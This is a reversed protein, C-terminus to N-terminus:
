RTAEKRAKNAARTAASKETKMVSAEFSFIALLYSFLLFGWLALAVLTIAEISDATWVKDAEYENKALLQRDTLDPRVTRVAKTNEAYEWGAVTRHWHDPAPLIFMTFVITYVVMSLLFGVLGVTLGRRITGVQRPNLFVFVAIFVIGALVPMALGMVTRDPYPPALNLFFAAFPLAAGIAELGRRTKKHHEVFESFKIVREM